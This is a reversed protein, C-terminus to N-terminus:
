LVLNRINGKRITILEKDMFELLLQAIRRNTKLLDRSEALTISGNNQIVNKILQIALEYNDVSIFVEKSIEKIGKDNQLLKVTEQTFQTNNPNFQYDNIIVLAHSLESQQKKTLSISYNKLSCFSKNDIIIESSNEIISRLIPIEIEVKQSIKKIEMNSEIKNTNLYKSIIKIMRQEISEIKKNTYIYKKSNVYIIKIQNSHILQEINIDFDDVELVAIKRLAELQISQNQEIINIIIAQKNKKYLEFLKDIERSNFRKFKLPNIRLIQGGGITTGSFRIIFRDFQNISIPSSLQIQCFGAQHPILSDQNLLKLRADLHVTGVHLSIKKNTLINNKSINLIRADFRTTISANNILRIVNGRMIKHKAIGQLNIALRAGNVGENVQKGNIQMGRIKATNKTPLVHVSDGIQFNGNTATGTVVTGFGKLTFVRDISLRPDNIINRKPIKLLFTDITNALKEISTDSADIKITELLDFNYIDNKSEIYKKLNNELKNLLEKENYLDCKTITIIIKNIGLLGIIDLHEETQKMIGEGAEVVLIVLDISHMGAIMNQIFKEHGPVDIISVQYKNQFNYHAFGLEISMGRDKEIPLRDTDIGTLRKVLTTKGHDIHGATAIVYM